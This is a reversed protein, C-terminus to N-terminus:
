FFIIVEKSLIVAWFNVGIVVGVVTEPNPVKKPRGTWYHALVM